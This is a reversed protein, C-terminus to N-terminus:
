RCIQRLARKATICIAVYVLLCSLAGVAYDIAISAIERPYLPAYQHVFDVTEITQNVMHYILFVAACLAGSRGVASKGSFLIRREPKGARRLFAFYGVAFTGYWLIAYVPLNVGLTLLYSVLREGIASSTLDFLEVVFSAALQLVVALLMMHLYFLGRKPQGIRGYALAAGLGVGPTVLTLVRLLIRLLNALNQGLSSTGILRSMLPTLVAGALLAGGFIWLYPTRYARLPPAKKM